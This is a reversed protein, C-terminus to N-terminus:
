DLRFCIELSQRCDKQMLYLPEYSIRKFFFRCHSSLTSSLSKFHAFISKTLWVIMLRTSPPWRV